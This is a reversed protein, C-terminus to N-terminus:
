TNLNQYKKLIPLNLDKDIECVGYPLISIQNSVVLTLDCRNKNHYEILKKINFNFFVDCNTM